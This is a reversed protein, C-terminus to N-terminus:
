RSFLFLKQLEPPLDRSPVRVVGSPVQLSVSSDDIKTVKAETWKRGDALTLDTLVTGVLHQRTGTQATQRQRSLSAKEEDLTKQKAALVALGQRLEAVRKQAAFAKEVVALSTRQVAVKQKLLDQQETVAAIWEEMQSKDHHWYWAGVGGFFILLAIFNKM